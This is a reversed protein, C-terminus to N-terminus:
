SGNRIDWVTTRVVTPEGAPVLFADAGRRWDELSTAALGDISRAGPLYTDDLAHNAGIDHSQADLMVTVRNAQDPPPRGDLKPIVDYRNELALVSVSEPVAMRAIPSGATVVHTVNFAKSDAYQEAARMAVLGGQSHGVLMVPDDRGVGALELARTVGDVRACHEGSLADVNTTLDNLYARPHLPDPQWDKTGPLDVVWSTVEAGDPGIRTIRRVDIEGQADGSARANRHQLALLLDGIGKPAPPADQDTGRGVVKATGTPFVSSILASEQEVTTPGVPHLHLLGNLFTPAAGAADEVIGPHEALFVNADGNEYWDRASVGVPSFVLFPVLPTAFLMATGEAWQRAERLGNDLRDTAVYRLVAARLCLSKEQLRAAAAVLGHPGVVAALVAAEARAFGGPDLLSSALMGADTVVRRADLATDVVDLACRQLVGAAHEVDAYEVELGASGGLVEVVGSM